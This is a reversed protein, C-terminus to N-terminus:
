WVDLSQIASALAERDAPQPEQALTPSQGYLPKIAFATACVLAILCHNM